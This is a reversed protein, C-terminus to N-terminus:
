KEMKLKSSKNKYLLSMGPNNNIDQVSNQVFPYTQNGIFSNYNFNSGLNNNRFFSETQPYNGQPYYNQNMMNMNMYYNSYINSPENNYDYFFTNMNYKYNWHYNSEIFGQGVGFLINENKDIISNDMKFLSEKLKFFSALTVLSDSGAQHKPGIRDV